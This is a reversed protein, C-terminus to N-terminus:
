ERNIKIWNSVEIYENKDFLNRSIFLLNRGDGFVIGNKYICINKEDKYSFKHIIKKYFICGEIEVYEEYFSIAKIFSGMEKIMLSTEWYKKANRYEYAFILYFIYLLVLIFIGAYLKLLNSAMKELIPFYPLICKKILYMCLIFSFLLKVRVLNGQMSRRSWSRYLEKIDKENEKYVVKIRKDASVM